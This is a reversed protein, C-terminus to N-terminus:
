INQLIVTYALLRLTDYNQNELKKIVTEPFYLSNNTVSFNQNTSWDTNAKKFVFGECDALVTSNKDDMYTTTLDYVYKARMGDNENKKDYSKQFLEVTPGGYAKVTGTPMTTRQLNTLKNNISTEVAEAIGDWVTNFDSTEGKLYNTLVQRDTKTTSYTNYGDTVIKNAVTPILNSELYTSYILYIYGDEEPDEYFFEWDNQMQTQGVTVPGLNATAGYKISASKRYSEEMNYTAYENQIVKLEKQHEVLKNRASIYWTLIVILFFIMSILVFMTVSGKPSKLKNRLEKINKM